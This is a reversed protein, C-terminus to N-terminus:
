KIAKSEPRFPAPFPERDLAAKLKLFAPHDPKWINETEVLGQEYDYLEYAVPAGQQFPQWAILRYREDRIARGLKGDRPFCHYVYDKTKIATNKLFPVFSKGDMPQQTAHVPIGCWEALTPYIDVTEILQKTKQPTTQGPIHIILPIRNALEHNVHKTWMGMEGLLYGHDGWLVVITNKDLGTEKLQALVKGIQADVYSVGAYYGHILKRTLSDPFPDTEAATPIGQYQVIEGDRKNAYALSGIPNSQQKPVPLQDLHYKDWYKKPVSFPLHPRAFGVALFFPQDQQKLQALRAAALKAVRGDAYTEDSVDLCEWAAGKALKNAEGWPVNGFLAEERTQGKKSKDAYEVVLDHEHPVTWSQKDNYTNHGVHFVKGIAATYYGKNKFHEPMTTAEPYFERFARGFDYLGTSTSRAGLLLNYRSAVCVAQNSYAREFVYANRAFADIEPSQAVQDGYVGLAPRLDDVLIFLVNYPKQKGSNANSEAIPEGTKATVNKQVVAAVAQTVWGYLLGICLLLAMGASVVRRNSLKRQKVIM